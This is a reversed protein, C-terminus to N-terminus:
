YIYDLPEIRNCVLHEDNETWYEFEYEFVQSQGPKTLLVKFYKYGMTEPYTIVTSAPWDLSAIAEELQDSCTETILDFSWSEEGVEYSTAFANFSTVLLLFVIASFSKMLVGMKTLKFM